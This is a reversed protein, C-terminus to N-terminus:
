VNRYNECNNVNWLHCFGSDIGDVANSHKLNKWYDGFKAFVDRATVTSYNDFLNQLKEAYANDIDAQAIALNLLQVSDAWQQGVMYNKVVAITVHNNESFM